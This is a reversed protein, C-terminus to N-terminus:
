IDREENEYEKNNIENLCMVIIGFYVGAFFFITNTIFELMTM